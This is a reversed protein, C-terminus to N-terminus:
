TRAAASDLFENDHKQAIVPVLGRAEGSRDVVPAIFLRVSGKSAESEHTVHLMTCSAESTFDIDCDAGGRSELTSCATALLPKSLLLRHKM